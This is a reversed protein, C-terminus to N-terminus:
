ITGEHKVVTIIQSNGRIYKRSLAIYWDEVNDSEIIKQMNERRERYCNMASPYDNFDEYTFVAKKKRKMKRYSDVEYTYETM